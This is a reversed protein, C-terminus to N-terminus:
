SDSRRLMLSNEMALDSPLWIFARFLRWMPTTVTMAATRDSAAQSGAVGALVGLAGAVALALVLGETVCLGPGLTVGVGAVGVEEAGETAGVVWAGAGAVVM